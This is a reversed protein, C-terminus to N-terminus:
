IFQSFVQFLGAIDRSAMFIKTNYYVPQRKYVDQGTMFIDEKHSIHEHLFGANIVIRSSIKCFYLFM